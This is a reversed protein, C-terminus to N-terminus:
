LSYLAHRVERQRTRMELIKKNVKELPSPPVYGEVPSCCELLVWWSPEGLYLHPVENFSQIKHITYVEGVTLGHENKDHDFCEETYVVSDGVKFSM